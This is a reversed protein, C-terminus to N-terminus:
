GNRLEINKMMGNFGKGITALPAEIGMREWVLQQGNIGIRTLFEMKNSDGNTDSVEFYTHDGQGKVSVDTWTNLPLSYNLTYPNGASVFTVNKVSGIGSLLTSDPGEFLTGPAPSTPKVSFSLTYNRGKSGLPTQIYCGNSFSVAGNSIKCKGHLSGDYGNGSSDKVNSSEQENFDYKLITDSKSKIRRDLNQAPVVAQLKDFISDYEKEKLDGGWDKDALAPLVDRFSYYAELYTTTNPGFDNWLASIHGLVKPNDRPPNNVTHDIDFINPAYAGGAPNGYFARTKNLSQPYSTSYKSVMYFADDTNLVNYGNQIYDQFPKDEYMVWHQYSVETSVNAGQKPTFTGWIRISKEDDTEKRIFENMTNVFRTYEGIYNKDYEDAGIQVTKSHFWPLFTKWVKQMTPITDPHSINLMSLDDLALEPKWQVFVLAHGPAEIEPIITVGRRACQRQVDDFQDRTYSENRRKNLGEIAPDDSWLRFASYLNM